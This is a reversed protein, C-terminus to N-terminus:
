DVKNGVKKKGSFGMFLSLSLIQGFMTSLGNGYVLDLGLFVMALSM